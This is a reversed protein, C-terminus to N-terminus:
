TVLSLLIVGVILGLAFNAWQDIRGKREYRTWAMDMIFEIDRQELIYFHNEKDGIVLENGSITSTTFTTTFDAEKM